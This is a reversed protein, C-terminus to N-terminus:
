IYLAALHGTAEEERTSVNTRLSTQGSLRHTRVVYGESWTATILITMMSMKGAGEAVKKMTREKWLQFSSQDQWHCVNQDRKEERIFIDVYRTM